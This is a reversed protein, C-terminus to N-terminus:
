ISRGVNPTLKGVETLSRQFQGLFIFEYNFNLNAIVVM